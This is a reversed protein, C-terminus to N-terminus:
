IKTNCIRGQIASHRDAADSPCGPVAGDSCPCIQREIHQCIVSQPPVAGPCLSEDQARSDVELLACTQTAAQVVHGRVCHSLVQGGHRDQFDPHVLKTSCFKCLFPMGPVALAILRVLSLLDM